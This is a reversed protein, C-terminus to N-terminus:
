IAWSRSCRPATWRGFVPITGFRFVSCLFGYLICEFFSTRRPWFMQQFLSVKSALLMAIMIIPRANYQNLIFKATALLREVYVKNSAVFNNILKCFKRAANPARAYWVSSSAIRSSSPTQLLSCRLSGAKARWARAPLCLLPALLSCLQCKFLHRMFHAIYVPDTRYAQLKSEAQLACTIILLWFAM